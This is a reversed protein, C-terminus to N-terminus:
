ITGDDEVEKLYDTVRMALHQVYELTPVLDEQGTMKAEWLLGDINYCLMEATHIAKEETM